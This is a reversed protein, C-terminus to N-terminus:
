AGPTDIEDFSASITEVHFRTGRLILRARFIGAPLGSPPATLESLPELLLDPPHHFEVIAEVEHDLDTQNRMQQAMQWCLCEYNFVDDLYPISFRNRSIGDRVIGAFAEEEGSFQYNTPRVKQWLETLLERLVPELLVCTMPFIEGIADFRNGRAITCNVSMGPQNVIDVLRKLERENLDYADLISLDGQTLRQTQEPALTLDVLARQFAPLSM